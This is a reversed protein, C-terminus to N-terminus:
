LQHSDSVTSTSETQLVTSNGNEGREGAAARDDVAMVVCVCVSDCVCLTASHRCPCAQTTLVATLVKM